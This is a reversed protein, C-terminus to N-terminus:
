GDIALLADTGRRTGFGAVSARPYMTLSIQSRGLIGLITRPAIGGALLLSTSRHRLDHFRQRTLSAAALLKQLRHGVSSPGLPTGVTTAVGLSGEQQQDGTFLRTALQCKRQTKLATLASEPLTVMRRSLPTKPEVFTPKGNGRQM